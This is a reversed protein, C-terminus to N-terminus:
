KGGGQSLKVSGAAVGTGSVSAKLTGKAIASKAAGTLKVQVASSGGPTLSFSASGITQKKTKKNKGKGTTIKATLTVKGSCAGPGPCILTLSAKGSKVQAKSAVSATGPPCLAVDTACTPAPPPTTTTGGGGGGSSAATFTATVAKAADITVKCAGTGTCAGSWGAFSSGSAASAGLTVEAGEEYEASCTAGCDIGAPSSTISGSGTGAKSVSLAFKPKPEFTATVANTAGITVLCKKGGEAESTCGSWGSFESGVAVSATLTVSSGEAFEASCTAGCDIGAPISTVSGSGTGAKTVTLPQTQVLPGFEYVQADLEGSGAYVNGANATASNDVALGSPGSDVFSLSDGFTPGIASVFTGDPKFEYIEGTGPAGAFQTIYLNGSSQDVALGTGYAGHSLSGTPSGAGTIENIISSGDPTLVAIVGDNLNSDAYSLAFLYIDGSDGDVAVSLYPTSLKGPANLGAAISASILDSGEAVSKYESITGSNSEAILLHDNSPNLALATPGAGSHNDGTGFFLSPTYTTTSTPPYSDPSFLEVSGGGGFANFNKVYLNGESDVASSVPGETDLISTVYEHSPDFIDIASTEYSSVYVYGNEDVSVGTAYGFEEATTESGDLAGLFPHESAAQAVGAFAATAALVIALALSAKVVRKRLRESM